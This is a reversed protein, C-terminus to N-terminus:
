RAKRPLLLPMGPVLSRPNELRNARALERWYRVDGYARQAILDLSEGEKVHWVRRLDPSARREHAIRDDPDLVEEFTAQIKARIPEGSRAFLTFAVSASKLYCQFHLGGDQGGWVLRVFRPRHGDGQYRLLDLVKDVDSRISGTKGAAGTGDFFLSLSLQDPNGARFSSTPRSNGPAQTQNWMNSRTLTYESPNFLVSFSGESQQFKQDSFLEIRLKPPAGETAAESV